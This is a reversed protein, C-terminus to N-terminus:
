IIEDRIKLFEAMQFLLARQEPYPSQTRKSTEINFAPVYIFRLKGALQSSWEYIGPISKLSNMTTENIVYYICKREESVITDLQLAIDEKLTNLGKVATSSKFLEKYLAVLFSEELADPNADFVFDSSSNETFPQAKGLADRKFKAPQFLDRSIIIEVFATEELFIDSILAKEIKRVASKHNFWWMHDITKILLWGCLQEAIAHSEYWKELNVKGLIAKQDKLVATLKKIINKVDEQEVLYQAIEDVATNDIGLKEGLRDLFFPKRNRLILTIKTKIDQNLKNRTKYIEKVIETYVEMVHNELVVDNDAGELSFEIKDLFPNLVRQFATEIEQWTQDSHSPPSCLKETLDDRCKRRNDDDGDWHHIKVDSVSIKHMAESVKIPVVFSKHEERCQNIKILEYLTYASEFYSPTLFIFICQAAAIEDMFATISEGIKLQEEDYILQINHNACHVKLLDRAAKTDDSHRYSLYAQIPVKGVLAKGNVTQEGM